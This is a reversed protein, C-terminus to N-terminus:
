RKRVVLSVGAGFTLWTLDASAMRLLLVSGPTGISASGIAPRSGFYRHAFYRSERRDSRSRCPIQLYAAEGIEFKYNIRLVRICDLIDASHRTMTATMLGVMWSNQM